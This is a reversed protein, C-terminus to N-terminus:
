TLKTGWPAPTEKPLITSTTTHINEELLGYAHFSESIESRHQKCVQKGEANERAKWSGTTIFSQCGFIWATFAGARGPGACAVLSAGAGPAVEAGSNGFALGCFVGTTGATAAAAGTIVVGVPGGAVAGAGAGAGGAGFGLFPLPGRGADSPGTPCDWDGCWFM